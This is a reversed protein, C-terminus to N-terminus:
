KVQPQQPMEVDEVWFGTTEPLKAMSYGTVTVAAYIRYTVIVPENQYVSKKSVIARVYLKESSGGQKRTETPSQTITITIPKSQYLKNKYTVKVPPITFTGTKAAVYYFTFTKSATMKGNVVSINQSTGGSGLFTLYGGMDPLEPQGIKSAGQGSLEVTFVIQQNVAVTTRSVTTTVSLPQAAGIVSAAFWFLM